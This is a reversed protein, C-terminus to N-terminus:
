APVPAPRAGVNIRLSLAAAIFGFIGAVIFALTYDGFVDRALGGGYAALAAGIQHSCFIWGFITGVSRRGFRDATLAVTPPVTAIYDLGFLIAFLTLGFGDTVVPLWVLSLARFGYYSALLLRPNFRDTLFGSATTGVVNMAGILALAGAAVNETFGHEAAHPILHTGILGNSTLGCIGFSVALLWFDVTRLATGLPTTPGDLQGAAAAAGSEAGYPELGVDSPRDRMLLFVLPLLVVAFLVVLLGLAARWGFQLTLGMMVPIFVLQGASTGAGLIGTVLGRNTVFWRNAITAGLVIALAGTSLGVVVGWWVTLELLTSMLLMAGSGLITIALAVLIVARPGLRDILRGSFPGALGYALLSVAIAFSIGSRDWGFEAELPVIVVGPLGRLGAALLLVLFTVAVVVWGYHVRRGGMGRPLMPGRGAEAAAM